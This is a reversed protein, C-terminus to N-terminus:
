DIWDRAYACIVSFLHPDGNETDHLHRQRTFLGVLREAVDEIISSDLLNALDTGVDHSRNDANLSQACLLLSNLAGHRVDAVLDALDDLYWFIEGIEAATVDAQESRIRNTRTRAIERIVLFPITSKARLTNRTACASLGRLKPSISLIEASYAERLTEALRKPLARGRRSRRIGDFFAVIIRLLIRVEPDRVSDIDANLARAAEASRTVDDLTGADFHSTFTSVLEPFSDHLLDFLSIGVNFLAALRGIAETNGGHGQLRRFGLGLEYGFALMYPLRRQLHPGVAGFLTECHLHAFDNVGLSPQLVSQRLHMGIQRQERMFVQQQALPPRFHAKELRHVAARRTRLWVEDLMFSIPWESAPRAPVPSPQAATSAGDRGEIVPCGAEITTM